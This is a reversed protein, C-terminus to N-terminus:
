AVLGIAKAEDTFKPGIYRFSAVHRTRAMTKILDAHTSKAGVQRIPASIMEWLSSKARHRIMAPHSTVSRYPKKTAAFIGAIHESMANGIGVGQFDPLVVTRHERWGHATPHPWYTVATFVVPSDGIIGLFCKASVNLRGTLYHHHSFMSWKERRCPEIRINIEPRQQLCRWSFLNAGTDFIWDPQLWDVIDNHCSVAVFRKRGRRIHKAVACSGIKAVTRDVVSTFEDLVILDENESLARALTARFQEGNSLVRFPKMWSPPSSFGVASLAACVDKTSLNVSFSDVVSENEAWELEGVINNPFLQRALTTKGSGSPGCILGIQWDREEIPLHASMEFTAREEAPM